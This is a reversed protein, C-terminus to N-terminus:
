KGHILFDFLNAVGEPGLYRYIDYAAYSLFGVLDDGVTILMGKLYKNM